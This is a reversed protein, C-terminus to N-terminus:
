KNKMLKKPLLCFFALRRLNTQSFKWTSSEVFFPNRLVRMRENFKLDRDEQKDRGSITKRLVFDEKEVDSCKEDSSLTSDSSLNSDYQTDDDDNGGYILYDYIQDLTYITNQEGPPLDDDGEGIPIYPDYGGMAM